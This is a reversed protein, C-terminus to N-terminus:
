RRKKAGGKKARTRKKPEETIARRADEYLTHSLEAVSHVLSRVHEELQLLRTETRTEDLIQTRPKYVIPGPVLDPIFEFEFRKTERNFHSRLFRVINTGSPIARQSKLVVTAGHLYASAAWANTFDPVMVSPSSTDVGRRRAEHLILKFVPRERICQQDIGTLGVLALSQTSRVNSRMLNIVNVLHSTEMDVPRHWKQDADRWHTSHSPTIM